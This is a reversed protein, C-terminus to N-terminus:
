RTRTAPTPRCCSRPSRVRRQLLPDWAAHVEGMGGRGLPHLLVYRAFGQGAAAALRTVGPPTSPATADM